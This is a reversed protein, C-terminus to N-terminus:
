KFRQLSTMLSSQKIAALFFDVIPQVGLSELMLVLSEGGCFDQDTSVSRNSTEVRQRGPLHIKTVQRGIERSFKIPAVSRGNLEFLHVANRHVFGPHFYQLRYPLNEQRWRTQSDQFTIQRYDDYSLKQLSEPVTSARPSYPKAAMMKARYRLTEFDFMEDAAWASAALAFLSFVALLRTTLKM